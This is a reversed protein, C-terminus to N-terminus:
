CPEVTDTPRVQNKIGVRKKATILRSAVGWNVGSEPINEDHIEVDTFGARALHDLVSARTFLRVELTCGPGGHFKPKHDTSIAGDEYEIDAVWKEGLNRAKYNVLGPYHEKHEGSNTFPVSFLFLGNPKLVRLAGEFAKDVDGFVHEFVETSILADYKGIHEEQPDTIDLYPEQHYFTNTYDYKESLLSSYRPGDSLGVIRISKQVPQHVLPTNNGHIYECLSLIISSARGSAQCSECLPGERAEKQLDLKYNGACIPCTAKVYRGSQMINRNKAMANKINNLVSQECEAELLDILSDLDVETEAVSDHIQSDGLAKSLGEHNSVLRLNETKFRSLLEERRKINLSSTEGQVNDSVVKIVQRWQSKSIKNYSADLINGVKILSNVVKSPMAINKRESSLDNGHCNISLLECFDVVSNFGSGKEEYGRVVVMSEPFAATLNNLIKEYSFRYPIDGNASVFKATLDDLNNIGSDIFALNKISESIMSELFYDQRRLYIVIKSFFCNKFYRRIANLEEVSHLHVNIHEDSVVITETDSSNLEDFITSELNKKLSQHQDNTDIGLLSLVPSNKTYAQCCGTLKINPGSGLCELLHVGQSQLEKRNDWLTNQISTTGTKETGVHLVVEKYETKM